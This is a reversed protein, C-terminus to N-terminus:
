YGWFHFVYSFVYWHVVACPFFTCFIFRLFLDFFEYPRRFHLFNCLDLVVRFLLRLLFFFAFVDPVRPHSHFGLLSYAPGMVWNWNGLKPPRTYPHPHRLSQDRPLLKESSRTPAKGGDPTGVVLAEGRGSTRTVSYLLYMHGLQSTPWLYICTFSHVSSKRM